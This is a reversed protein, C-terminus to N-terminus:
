HEPGGKADGSRPALSLADDETPPVACCPRRGAVNETQLRLGVIQAVQRGADDFIPEAVSAPSQQNWLVSYVPVDGREGLWVEDIQSEKEFLGRTAVAGETALTGHPSKFELHLDFASEVGMTGRSLRENADFSESILISGGLLDSHGRLAMMVIESGDQDAHDLVEIPGVVSVAEEREGHRLTIEGEVDMRYVASPNVAFAVHVRSYFWGAISGEEDLLAVPLQEGRFVNMEGEKREGRGPADLGLHSKFRVPPISDITGLVPVPDENYMLGNPTEILVKRQVIFDAPYNVGGDRQTITGLSRLDPHEGLLVPGDMLYSEGRLDSRTLEFDIQIAGSPLERRNFGEVPFKPVWVTGTFTLDESPGAVDPGVIISSNALLYVVDVVPELEDFSEEEEAYVPSLTFTLALAVTWLSVQKMSRIM